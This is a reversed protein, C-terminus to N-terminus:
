TERGFYDSGNAVFRELGIKVEGLDKEILKEVYRSREPSAIENQIIIAYDILHNM